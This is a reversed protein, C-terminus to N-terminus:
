DLTWAFNVFDRLFFFLSIQINKNTIFNCRFIDLIMKSFNILVLAVGIQLKSPILRLFIHSSLQRYKEKMTNWAINQFSLSIVISTTPISSNTKFHVYFKLIEFDALLTALVQKIRWYRDTQPTTLKGSIAESGGDNFCRQLVSILDIIEGHCSIPVKKWRM